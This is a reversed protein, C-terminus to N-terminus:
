NLCMYGMESFCFLIFIVIKKVLYLVVVYTAKRVTGRDNSMKRKEKGLPGSAVKYRCSKFM